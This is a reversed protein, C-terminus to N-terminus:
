ISPTYLFTISTLLNNREVYKSNVYISFLTDYALKTPKYGAEKFRNWLQEAPEPNQQGTRNFVYNLAM